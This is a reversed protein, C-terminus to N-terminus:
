HEWLYISYNFCSSPKPGMQEALSSCSINSPPPCPSVSYINTEPAVWGGGGSGLIYVAGRNGHECDCSNYMYGVEGGGGVVVESM